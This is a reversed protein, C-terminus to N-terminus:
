LIVSINRHHSGKTFLDSIIQSKAAEYMLDDIIIWIPDNELNINNLFNDPIGKIFTVGIISAFSPQFEGYLYYIHKPSPHSAFLAEKIMKQVWCTKGSGTPGSIIMTFPHKLYFSYMNLLKKKTTDKYLSFIVDKFFAITPVVIEILHKETSYSDIYLCTIEM